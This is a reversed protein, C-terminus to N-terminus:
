SHWNSFHAAVEPHTLLDHLQGEHQQYYAELAALVDGGEEGALGKHLASVRDPGVVYVWEYSTISAGWFESVRPGTDHGVIRLTGDDEIQAAESRTGRDDSLDRLIVRRVARGPRPYVHLTAGAARAIDAMKSDLQGRADMEDTPM